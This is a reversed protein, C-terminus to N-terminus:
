ARRLHGGGLALRLRDQHLVATPVALSLGALAYLLPVLRLDATTWEQLMMQGTQLGGVAVAAAVIRRTQGGRQGAGGQLAALGVLAYGLTYLPFTLRRHGEAILEGRFRRDNPDDGPWLLSGLYREQPQRWRTLLNERLQRLDVTYRDFYLLSLRGTEPDVVQRNGDILVVRTAGDATVIAGRRAMMTVPRRGERSDHVLVNALEGDATREGVYVTLSESVHNFRGAELLITSYDHRIRWQLNKFAHYSAPLAYLSIAYVLLTAALALLLAPRALRGPGLGAARLVVLESEGIMRNYVFLVAVFVAIPIVLGLFWPLLFILLYLFEGLPLGRNVILDMFRLSQTLWVAATLAAAVFVSVGVLQRLIYRDLVRM